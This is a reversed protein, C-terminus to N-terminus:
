DGHAEERLQVITEDTGPPGHVAQYRVFIRDTLRFWFTGQWLSALLGTRSIKVRQAAVKEGAVMIEEIPGKEAQMAVVELSDARITWFSIESEASDLFPRLSYSLPQYWPRDDIQETVSIQKGSSIGSLQLQNGRRVAQISSHGTKTAKWSLTQGTRDCLNVFIGDEEEVTIVEQPPSSRHRWTFTKVSKGTSEQYRYIPHDDAAPASNTTLISFLVIGALSGGM